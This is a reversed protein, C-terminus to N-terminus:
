MYMIIDPIGYTKISHKISVGFLMLKSAKNDADQPILRSIAPFSYVSSLWLLICFVLGVERTGRAVREEVFTELDVKELEKNSENFGM